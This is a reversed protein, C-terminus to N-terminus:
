AGKNIRVARAAVADIDKGDVVGDGNIDWQLDVRESAEVRRALVFADLIDVRGNRDVDEKVAQMDVLAVTRSDMDGDGDFDHVFAFVVVAAVAAASVAWRGIRLRWRKKGLHKRAEALIARDVEVPVGRRAGYLSKLDGVFEGGVEFEGGDEIKDYKDNM